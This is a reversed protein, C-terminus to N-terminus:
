YLFPKPMQRVPNTFFCALSSWQGIIVPVEHSIRYVENSSALMVRDGDPCIAIIIGDVSFDITEEKVMDEKFDKSEALSENYSLLRYEDSLYGAECVAYYPELAAYETEALFERQKKPLTSRFDEKRNKKAYRLAKVADKETVTRQPRNKSVLERYDTLRKNLIVDAPFPKEVMEEFSYGPVPSDSIYVPCIQKETLVKSLILQEVADRRLLIENKGVFSNTQNLYGYAFFTDPMDKQLYCSDLEIDLTTFIKAIKPLSGGLEQIKKNIPLAKLMATNPVSYALNRDCMIRPVRDKPAVAFYQIGRFRGVDKLWCYRM